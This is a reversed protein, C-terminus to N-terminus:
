HECPLQMKHQHVSISVEDSDCHPYGIIEKYRIAGEGNTCVLDFSGSRRIRSLKWHQITETKLEIAQMAIKDVLWNLGYTDKLYVVGDSLLLRGFKHQTFSETRRFHDLHDNLCKSFTFM